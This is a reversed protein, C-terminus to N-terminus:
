LVMWIVWFRDTFFTHTCRFRYNVFPVFYKDTRDYWISSVTVTGITTSLVHQVNAPQRFLIFVVRFLKKSAYHYFVNMGSFLSYRLIIWTDISKTPNPMFGHNTYNWETSSGTFGAAFNSNWYQLGWFRYGGICGFKSRSALHSTYVTSPTNNRSSSTRYLLALRGAPNVRSLSLYLNGFRGDEHLFVALSNALIPLDM